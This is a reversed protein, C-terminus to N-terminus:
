IRADKKEKRGAISCKAGEEAVRRKKGKLNVVGRGHDKKKGFSIPAHEEKGGKGSFDQKKKLEGLTDTGELYHTEIM